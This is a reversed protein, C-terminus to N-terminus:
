LHFNSHNIWTIGKIAEPFRLGVATILMAVAGLLAVLPGLYHTVPLTTHKRNERMHLLLIATSLGIYIAGNLIAIFYYGQSRRVNDLTIVTGASIFALLLYPSLAKLPLPLPGKTGKPTVKFQIEKALLWSVTANMIGYLVWPWRAFQFIITEWSIVKAKQPRLWGRTAIWIVPLVCTITLIFFRILFELYSVKVWPIDTLLAIIPILCSSLMSIGFIPYWLQSFAFQFKLQPSLNKWYRPTVSLLVIMLSRSWQFEQVLFDTFCTPGDGHAEAEFAFVGKWGHANMMLTTTHDEALEPGLGGIQKLATTRIAYHSGICLPAWGNNYGAQLSGHMTAEAFLRANVVWSDATNADCISPAAVYGVRSDIFPRIMAELYGKAPVHDADLQVVFDYNKYGVTDYFYALNGEKCKTRRPWTSRHYATIGKRTSLGVGHVKCWDVTETLPDEDALWTDHPYKQALMAKVTNKVVPWPESPAKTVVMAVKWNSPIPITPNSRRMRSVFYFYYGPLLTNWALLLSNLVMGMFTVIHHSQLWWIWFYILSVLWITILLYFICKDRKSMVEIFVNTSSFDLSQRTPNKLM